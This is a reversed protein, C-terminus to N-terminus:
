SATINNHDINDTFHDDIHHYINFEYQKQLQMSAVPTQVAASKNNPFSVGISNNFEYVCLIFEFYKFTFM